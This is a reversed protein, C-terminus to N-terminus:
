PRISFPDQSRTSSKQCTCSTHGSTHSAQDQGQINQQCRQQHQPNQMHQGQDEESLDPDLPDLPDRDERKETRKQSDRCHTWGTSPGATQGTPPATPIDTQGVFTPVHCVLQDIQCEHFVSFLPSDPPCLSHGRQRLMRETTKSAVLPVPDGQQCDRALDLHGTFCSTM